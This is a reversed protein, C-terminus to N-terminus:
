EDRSHPRYAGRRGRTRVMEARWVVEGCLAAVGIVLGVIVCARPSRQRALQTIVEELEGHTRRAIAVARDIPDTDDPM